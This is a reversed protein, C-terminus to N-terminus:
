FSQVNLFGQVAVRGVSHMLQEIATDKIFM